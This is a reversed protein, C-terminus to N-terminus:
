NKPSVDFTETSTEPQLYTALRDLLSSLDSMTMSALLPESAKNETVPESPLALHSKSTIQSTPFLDPPPMVTFALPGSTTLPIFSAVQHAVPLDALEPSSPRYERPETISTSMLSFELSNHNFKPRVSRVDDDEDTSNLEPSSPRYARKKFPATHVAIKREQDNSDCLEMPMPPPLFLDSPLTTQNGSPHDGPPQQTPDAHQIHWPPTSPPSPPRDLQDLDDHQNMSTMNWETIMSRLVRQRRTVERTRGYATTQMMKLYDPQVLMKVSGTGMPARAGVIINETIGKLHDVENFVAANMLMEVSEEFSIRMLVGTDVRNIGHRSMPMLYGRLCMTKVVMMIHRDNVYSGDFSLVTKIEQFLIQAAAEIGLTDYIEHLDNSVTRTWDVGDMAWVEELATGQTDVIWEKKRLLGQTEPDIGVRQVERVTADSVGKIGGMSIVAQLRAMETQTLLKEIFSRETDDESAEKAMDRVDMLSIRIIWNEANTASYVVDAREGVYERIVNAVDMPTMGRSLTLARNLEMRIVWRSASQLRVTNRFMNADHVAGRDESILTTLPNPDWVTTARKVLHGLTTYILTQALYEAAQHNSSYQPQLTITLSPTKM